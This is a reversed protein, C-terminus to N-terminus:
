RRSKKSSFSLISFGEKFRVKSQKAGFYRSRIKLAKDKPSWQLTSTCSRAGLWWPRRGKTRAKAKTKRRQWWTITPRTMEHELIPWFGAFVFYRWFIHAFAFVVLLRASTLITLTVGRGVYLVLSNSSKESSTSSNHLDSNFFHKLTGSSYAGNSPNSTCSIQGVGLMRHFNRSVNSLTVRFLFILIHLICYLWWVSFILQRLGISIGKALWGESDRSSIGTLPYSNYCGLKFELM